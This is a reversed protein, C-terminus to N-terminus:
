EESFFSTFVFFAGVLVLISLSLAYMYSYHIKKVDRSYFIEAQKNEDAKTSKSLDYRVPLRLCNMGVKRIKVQDVDDGSTQIEFDKCGAEKFVESYADQSIGRLHFNDVILIGNENLLDYAQCIVGLPDSLHRFTTSAVILDFKKNKLAEVQNLNELNAVIYEEDPIRFTGKDFRTSRFDAATVGIVEANSFRKKFGQLFGGLGCGLDLVAFKEKSKFEEAIKSATTGVVSRESDNFEYDDNQGWHMYNMFRDEFMGQHLPLVRVEYSEDILQQIAEPRKESSIRFSSTNASQPLSSISSM